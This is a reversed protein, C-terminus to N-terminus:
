MEIVSRGVRSARIEDLLMNIDELKTRHTILSKLDLRGAKLLKIYRPIDDTPYTKGGDSAIITKGQHMALTNLSIKQDHYLQAVIYLKGTPSTLGWAMEMVEKKGTTEVVIDAGGNTLKKLFNEFPVGDHTIYSSNIATTAGLAIAKDLKEESIDVGIIPYASTLMAGQIINLGVGGCGIVIISQGMKLNVENSICGLGATVACGLLAAIELPVDDPIKTLRNESVVSYEQFSTVWGGGVERNLEPCWYKPCESEIGAGKRWHMVVHDGPKVNKVGPGTAMVIGSGEHGLCHPLYKDPGKVGSIEGLQAGCVGSYHVKVLSQGVSLHSPTELTRLM